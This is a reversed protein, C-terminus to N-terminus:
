ADQDSDIRGGSDFCSYAGKCELFAAQQLSGGIQATEQASLERVALEGPSRERALIRAVIRRSMKPTSIRKM